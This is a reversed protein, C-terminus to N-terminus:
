SLKYHQHIDSVKHQIDNIREDVWYDFIAKPERFGIHAHYEWIEKIEEYAIQFSPYLKNDSICQIAKKDEQLQLRKYVVGDRMSVVIYTQNKKIHSINETYKCIVISGSEMPLMSDGEIEFARYHGSLGPFQMKPLVGVYEPDQFNELYGAAAKTNVLEINAKQHNDMTIALVKVDKTQMVEWEELEMKRTLLHSVEVKYIKALALLMDLSPETHGREYDGLTTRPIGLNEAAEQQSLNSKQRLFRLNQALYMYKNKNIRYEKEGV